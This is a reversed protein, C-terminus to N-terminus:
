RAESFWAACALQVPDIGTDDMGWALAHAIGWGRMRERDLGLEDALLDLRRRIKRAPAPDRALEDRRDRLLSATDLAREGVLPKPDIACWGERTRLVNGGHLDQHLVFAEGGGHADRLFTLAEDLLVRPFPRGHRDWLVPLEEAWGAAEEDLRLFSHERPAPREGLRRLVGAAIRNAEDDEPLEWLQWGPRCRELLLARRTRDEALLRVAGRGDWFALAAGEHESERHPYSLKLVAEGAPLVLSVHGDALPGGLDLDWLEACERALRPLEALWEAGGPEDRLWELEAPVRLPAGPM